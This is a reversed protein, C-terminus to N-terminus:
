GFSERWYAFFHGLFRLIDIGDRPSFHKCNRFQFCLLLTQAEAGKCFYGIPIGILIGISDQLFEYQIRYSNGDFRIPIGISDQLFEQQIKYSNRNFRIPIGISDQLFEQQIRYSNRNFRISIGISDQLFEQQIRYSYRNFEIPM